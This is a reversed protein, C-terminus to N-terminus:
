RMRRAAFFRQVSAAEARHERSQMVGLSTITPDISFELSMVGDEFGGAVQYGAERFVQLMGVNDPLVEAVFKEVDVERGIQALHELLLQGIGRHHHRDQVLFAVEAVDGTQGPERPLREFQGIAIMREAVTLILAVRDRHDVDVFRKIERESLTPMAAFFRYYKSQSSVQEYFAVLLDADDPSVPRLHATGGDRLLVDAEWHRPYSSERTASAPSTM